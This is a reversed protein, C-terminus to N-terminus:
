DNILESWKEFAETISKDETEECKITFTTNIHEVPKVPTFIFDFHLTGDKIYYSNATRNVYSLNQLKM